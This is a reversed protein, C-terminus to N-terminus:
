IRNLVQYFSKLSQGVELGAYTKVTAAHTRNWDSAMTVRM